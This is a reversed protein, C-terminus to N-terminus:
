RKRGFLGKNKKKNKMDDEETVTLMGNLKPNLLIKRQEEPLSNVLEVYEAAERLRAVEEEDGDEYYADEDDQIAAIDRPDIEGELFADFEAKTRRIYAYIGLTGAVVLIGGAISPLQSVALVLVIVLAVFAGLGLRLRQNPSYREKMSLYESDEAKKQIVWNTVFFHSPIFLLIGLIVGPITWLWNLNEPLPIFLAAVVAFISIVLVVIAHTGPKKTDGNYIKEPRVLAPELYDIYEEAPKRKSKNTAM